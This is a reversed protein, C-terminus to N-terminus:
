EGMEERLIRIRDYLEECDAQTGEGAEMKQTAEDFAQELSALEALKDPM